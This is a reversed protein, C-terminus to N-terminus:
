VGEEEEIMKLLEILIMRVDPGPVMFEYVPLEM